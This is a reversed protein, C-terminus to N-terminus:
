QFNWLFHQCELSQILKVVSWFFKPLAARGPGGIKGLGTAQAKGKLGQSSLIGDHRFNQADLSVSKEKETALTALRVVDMDFEGPAIRLEPKNGDFERFGAAKATGVQACKVIQNLLMSFRKDECPILVKALLGRASTTSTANVSSSNITVRASALRTDAGSSHNGRNRPAEGACRPLQRRMPHPIPMWQSSKSSSMETRLRSASQAVRQVAKTDSMVAVMFRWVSM